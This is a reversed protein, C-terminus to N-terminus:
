QLLTAFYRVSDVVLRTITKGSGAAVRRLTERESETLRLNLAVCRPAGREDLDYRGDLERKRAARARKRIRELEKNIEATTCQYIDTYEDM